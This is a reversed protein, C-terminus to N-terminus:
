HYHNLQTLQDTLTTKHKENMGENQIEPSSPGTKIHECMKMIKLTLKLCSTKHHSIDENKNQFPTLFHHENKMLPKIQM